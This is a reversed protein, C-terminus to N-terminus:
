LDVQQLSGVQGSEYLFVGTSRVLGLNKNSANNVSFPSSVQGLYLAGVGTEALSRLSDQGSADRQWVKLQSFIADNEDIWQNGDQDFQALDTFGNGSRPGFLETGDNVKGDQNKDFVLFGSGAGVFAINEPHGDANLDFAFQTDTLAVGQGSFNIVLPDQRVADGTRLTAESTQVFARQMELQLTFNIHQGDATQVVGQASVQTTQAEAVREQTVFELGWGQAQPSDPAPTAAPAASAAPAAVASAGTPVQLEQANFVTVARGTIAEVMAILLRLRPDFQVTDKGSTLAETTSVKAPAQARKYLGADASGSLNLNVESRISQGIARGEFDPRHQGTWARWTSQTSRLAVSAQQSQLTVASQTIKM